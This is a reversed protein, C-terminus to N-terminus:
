NPKCDYTNRQDLSDCVHREGGANIQDGYRGVRIRANRISIDINAKPENFRFLTSQPADIELGDIELTKRYVGAHANFVPFDKNRGSNGVIRLNRFTGHAGDGYSGWGFQVPVANLIMRITTDTVTIDNYVKIVDDGTAFYSNSVTSGPGAQIGDSHNSVGGRDDIAEIHDLHMVAGKHGTFHFGIPNLSRLNRVNVVVDKGEAYIASYPVCGGGQDLKANHLLAPTPTGFIESQEPGQGEIDLSSHTTFAAEVRVGRELVIRKVEVPVEWISSRFDPRAFDIRGSSLFQLTGSNAQWELRGSYHSTIAEISQAHVQAAFIMCLTSLIHWLIKIIKMSVLYLRNPMHVAGGGCVQLGLSNSLRYARHAITTSWSQSRRENLFLAGHNSITIRGM